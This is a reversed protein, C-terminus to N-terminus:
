ENKRLILNKLEYIKDAVLKPVNTEIEYTALLPILPIAVKLKQSTSMPSYLEYLVEDIKEKMNPIDNKIVELNRQITELYEQPNQMEDISNVLKDVSNRLERIEKSIININSESQSSYKNRIDLDSKQSFNNYKTTFSTFENNFPKFLIDEKKKKYELYKKIEVKIKSLFAIEENDLPYKCEGEEIFLTELHTLFNCVQPYKEFEWDEEFSYEDFVLLNSYPKWEYAKLNEFDPKELIRAIRSCVRLYNRNIEEDIVLLDGQFLVNLIQHLIRYYNILLFLDRSHTNEMVNVVEDQMKINYEINRLSLNNSSYKNLVDTVTRMITSEEKIRNLLTEFLHTESDNLFKFEYAGHFFKFNYDKIEIKFREFYFLEKTTSQRNFIINKLESQTFDGLEKIISENFDRMQRGTFELWRYLCLLDFSIESLPYGISGNPSYNREKESVERSILISYNDFPEESDLNELFLYEKYRYGTNYTKINFCEFFLFNDLLWKNIDKSEDSYTLSYVDICPIISFCNKSKKFFFGKFFTSIFDVIQKKIENKIGYINEKKFDGLSRNERSLQDIEIDKPCNYIVDNMKESIPPLLNAQVQLIITSTSIAYAKIFLEEIDLGLDYCASHISGSRHRSNIIPPLNLYISKKDYFNKRSDLRRYNLRPNINTNTCKDRVESYLADLGSFLDDFEEIYFLDLLIIANYQVKENEPLFYLQNEESYLDKFPENETDM